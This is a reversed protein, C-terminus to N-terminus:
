KEKKKAPPTTPAVYPGYQADLVKWKDSALISDIADKYTPDAAYTQMFLIMYDYLAKGELAVVVTACCFLSLCFLLLGRM